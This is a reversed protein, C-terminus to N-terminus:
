RNNQHLQNVNIYQYTGGTKSALKRMFSGAPPEASLGFQVCHVAARGKTVRYIQQIQGDNLEPTDGDTLLIIADAELDIARYLGAEHDTSGFPALQQIFREVELKNQESAKLMGADQLTVTQQHYAVIQFENEPALPNLANLLEQQARSLVDLGGTGMSKSRDLVFVFRRGEIPASGFIATTALPAPQPRNALERQEEAIAALTEPSLENGPAAGTVGETMAAASDTLGPLDLDLEQNRERAAPSETPLAPREEPLSNAPSTEATQNPPLPQELYSTEASDQDTPEALVLSVRRPGEELPQGAPAFRLLLLLLLFLLLHISFSLSAAQWPRRLTPAISTKQSFTEPM